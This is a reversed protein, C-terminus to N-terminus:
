LRPSYLPLSGRAVPLPGSSNYLTSRRCRIVDVNYLKQRPDLANVRHIKPRPRPSDLFTRDVFYSLLPGFEPLSQSVSVTISKHCPPCVM